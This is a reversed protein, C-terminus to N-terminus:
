ATFSDPLSKAMLDKRDEVIQIFDFLKLQLSNFLGSYPTTEMKGILVSFLLNIAECFAETQAEKFSIPYAPEEELTTACKLAKMELEAFKSLDEEPATAVKRILHTVLIEMSKCFEATETEEPLDHFTEDSMNLTSTFRM